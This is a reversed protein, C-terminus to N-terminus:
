KVLDELTGYYVDFDVLQSNISHRDSRQWIKFGKSKWLNPLTPRPLSTYEALWLDYEAIRLDNFYEQAFGFDTYIIPRRGLREEVTKLFTLANEQVEAAQTHPPMKGQEIDLVPAIDESRIDHILSCFFDAQEVPNLFYDYFHYAGRILGKEPIEKWNLTFDPDQFLGQSAKCIVFTLSDIPGVGKIFDGQWNSIDVGYYAKASPDPQPTVPSTAQQVSTSDTSQVTSSTESQNCSSFFLLLLVAKFFTISPNMEKFKSYM